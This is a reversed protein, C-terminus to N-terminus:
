KKIRNLGSKRIIEHYFACKKRKNSEETETDKIFMPSNMSDSNKQFYLVHPSIHTNLNFVNKTTPIARVDTGISGERPFEYNLKGGLLTSNDKKYLINSYEDSLSDESQSVDMKNSSQEDTSSSEKLFVTSESDITKQESMEINDGDPISESSYLEGEVVHLNTNNKRRQRYTSVVIYCFLLTDFVFVCVLFKRLYKM